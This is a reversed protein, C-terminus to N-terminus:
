VRRRAERIWSLLPERQARYEDSWRAALQDFALAAQELTDLLGATTHPLRAAELLAAVENGAGGHRHHDTGEARDRLLMGLVCCEQLMELALHLAILRDDRMVKVLALMGKFWFGNAMAQFREATMLAPQPRPFTRALVAEARPSRSFLLRSGNWFSVRPWEEWRELAAETTILFDVRRFDAFCARTVAAFAHASQDWASLEGFPKLWDLAPHFRDRAGEAVVLLADIDSWRDPGPEAASGFVALARVEPDRELHRTLQEMMAQQWGPPAIM